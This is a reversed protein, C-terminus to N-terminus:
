KYSVKYSVKSNVKLWYAAYMKCIMQTMQTDTIHLNPEAVGWSFDQIRGQIIDFQYFTLVYFFVDNGLFITM